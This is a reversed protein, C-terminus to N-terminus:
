PARLVGRYSRVLCRGSSGGGECVGGREIDGSFVEHDCYVLILYLLKTFLANNKYLVSALAREDINSALFVRAGEDSRRGPSVCPGRGRQM